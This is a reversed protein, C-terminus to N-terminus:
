VIEGFVDLQSQERTRTHPRAADPDRVVLAHSYDRAILVTILEGNQWRRKWRYLWASFARADGTLEIRGLIDV